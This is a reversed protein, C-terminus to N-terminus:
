LPFVGLVVCAATMVWSTMLLYPISFRQHEALDIGTLGVLLFTAPTLPSVPFGTTMHGLLAGQGVHTAPVGFTGAVDAIVPLVGFYFSDPDFMLSMPMAMLGLLVPIHPASDRPVAAVAAQAMAALMGSGKMVGLFAGAGMLITAIMLASTAHADVRSRQTATDPYNVVLAVVTGVMFALSPPVWEVVMVVLVLVTLVVNLWLRSPRRLLREQESLVRGVVQVPPDDSGPVLALRRAERRGLWWAVAFVFSLGLAM